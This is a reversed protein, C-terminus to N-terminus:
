DTKVLYYEELLLGLIFLVILQPVLLLVTDGVRTNESSGVEAVSIDDESEFSLVAIDLYKDTGVLTTQYTKDNSMVIKVSTADEVVHNNTMVYYKNGDKKFIFGSGTGYLKNNKYVEVIVVSDYVKEVADAIGNENVTVEKESKNIVTTGPLASLIGFTIVGGITMLGVAVIFPVIWSTYNKKKIENEM